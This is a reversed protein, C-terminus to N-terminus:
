SFLIVLSQRALAAVRAPVDIAPLAAALQGVELAQRELLDLVAHDEASLTAATGGTALPRRLASHVVTGAGITASLGLNLATVPARAADQAALFADLDLEDAMRRLLAQVGARQAARAAPPALAHMDMPAAADEKIRDALWRVVDRESPVRLAVTLHLSAGEAVEASHRMGRPVFLLDGPQLTVTDTPADGEVDAYFTWRKGGSLHLVLVDTEDVHPALASERVFSAYCNISTTCRVHREILASLAALARVERDVNGIVVSMAQHALSQVASASLARTGGATVPPVAMDYMARRGRQILAMGGDHLREASPLTNLMDWPLLAAFAAAQATRLHLRERGVMAADILAPDHPHALDALSRIM